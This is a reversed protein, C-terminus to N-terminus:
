ASRGLDPDLAQAAFSGSAVLTAGRHVTFRLQRPEPQLTILLRSGPAVPALFKVSQLVLGTAPPAALSPAAACWAELVEALLCVGPLIPQGVFHGAFAPHDSAILRECTLAPTTM